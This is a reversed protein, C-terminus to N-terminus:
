RIVTPIHLYSFNLASLSMVLLQSEVVGNVYVPDVTTGDIKEHHTPIMQRSLTEHRGEPRGNRAYAPNRTRM